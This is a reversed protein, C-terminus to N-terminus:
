VVKPQEINMSQNIQGNKPNRKLFRMRYNVLFTRIQKTTLNTISILEVLEQPSPYPQKEHDCLWELLIARNEKGISPNKKKKNQKVNLVLKASNSKSNIKENTKTKKKEIVTTKDDTEDITQQNTSKSNPNKNDLKYIHTAKINPNIYSIGHSRLDSPNVKIIQDKEFSKGFNFLKYEDEQNSLSDKAHTRKTRFNPSIGSFNAKKLTLQELDINEM